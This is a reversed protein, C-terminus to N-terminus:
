LGQNKGNNKLESHPHLSHKWYILMITLQEKLGAFSNAKQFFGQVDLGYALKIIDHSVIGTLFVFPVAKSKLYENEQISSRFALGDTVPMRIDCLIILPHDKTEMLYDYAASTTEMTLIPNSVGIERIATHIVEADNPDDEILLIAGAHSM